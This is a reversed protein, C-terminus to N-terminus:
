RVTRSAYVLQLHDILRRTDIGKVFFSEAGAREIPHLTEGRPQASLGLIRISPREARIQATAEIGDMHPMAVDMLIVDPQLARAKAVAELGDAADGVIAFQSHKQLLDRLANRVGAHDDVILIRLGDAAASSSTRAIPLAEDATADRVIARPALLRIRTGRAPASEIDMCGGLLTLRERISFLGGGAQKDSSRDDLRAPDFGIGEDDVTICLRDNEDLSLALSVRDAGAHKVANFILERVSEFLLARVDKRQSDARPDASVTVDIRYKDRMWGALWELAAPLGSRQLVPPFLEFNLSRAAVIAQDLHKKAELLPASAAEGSEDQGKLHHEVNMAAIVLLQQLGDHLTRAMQERAHQEALTLDSAMRRLQTTRHELEATRAELAAATRQRESIDTVFAFATPGSATLVSNVSVEIPFTSRDTRAGVLYLEGRREHGGGFAGPILPEIPQGISTGEPLGFMDEFARNATVIVGHADVSVIGQTATELLTRLARDHEAERRARLAEEAQYHQSFDLDLGTLRTVQGNADREARGRSQIWVMAGDARIIRFTNEWTDKTTSTLIEQQSAFMKPRDDEHVLPMWADARAPQDPGLGYLARFREDWDVENTAANWTWSGGKSADLALRLRQGQERLETETKRYELTVWIRDAVEQVLAIEDATWARPMRSHVGFAGVFRGDKVLVPTISAGIGAAHLATREGAVRPDISTDNVVVTAGAAVHEALGSGLARWKFRGAMSPVGDVYDNVITCNEGDIEGYCVRNVSLHAGLLRCTEALIHSPAALPWIRDNLRRLFMQRSEAGGPMEQARAVAEVESPDPM